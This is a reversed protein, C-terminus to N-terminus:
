PATYEPTSAYVTPDEVGAERIAERREFCTGCSGCHVDGGKYCSWTAELPVGCEFAKRAIAAKTSHLFPAHVIFGPSCFGENGIRLTDQLAMIFEPRCDPYIFHDGAHVGTAIGDFGRAIAVAAAINLMMANRNPVVTARMSDEAYHGDPVEVEGTLSSTPILGAMFSIDVVLHETGLAHAALAAYELEKRHRQGYNFSVLLQDWGLQYHQYYALTVSDMGGSVVSVVKM